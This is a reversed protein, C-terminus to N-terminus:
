HDGPHNATHEHLSSVKDIARRPALLTDGLTYCWVCFSALESKM